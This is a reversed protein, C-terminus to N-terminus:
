LYFCFRVEALQNMDFACETLVRQAAQFKLLIRRMSAPLRNRSRRGLHTILLLMPNIQRLDRCAFGTSQQTDFLKRPSGHWSSGGCVWCDILDNRRRRHLGSAQLCNRLRLLRCIQLSRIKAGRLACALRAYGGCERISAIQPLSGDQEPVREPLTGVVHNSMLSGAFRRQEIEVVFDQQVRTLKFPGDVVRQCRYSFISVFADVVTEIWCLWRNHDDVWAGPMTWADPAEFAVRFDPDGHVLPMGDVEHQEIRIRRRALSNCVHQM